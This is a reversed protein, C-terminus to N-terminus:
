ADLARSLPDGNIRQPNVPLAIRKTQPARGMTAGNGRVGEAGNNAYAALRM